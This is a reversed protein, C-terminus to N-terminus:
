TWAMLWSALNLTYAALQFATITESLLPVEFFLLRRYNFYLPFLCWIVHKVCIRCETLWVQTGRVDAVALTEVRGTKGLITSKKKKILQRHFYLDRGCNTGNKLPVICVCFSFCSAHDLVTWFFILSCSCLWRVCHSSSLVVRSFLQSFSWCVSISLFCSHDLFSHLILDHISLSSGVIISINLFFDHSFLSPKKPLSRPRWHVWCFSGTKSPARTQVNVCIHLTPAPDRCEFPLTLPALTM